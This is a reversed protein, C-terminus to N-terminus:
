TFECVVCEAANGPAATSSAIATAIHAVVDAMGSCAKFHKRKAFLAWLVAVLAAELRGGPLLCLWEDADELM